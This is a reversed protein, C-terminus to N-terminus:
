LLLQECINKSFPTRLFKALNVPFCSHQHWKKIFNCVQLGAAKKFLNKKFFFLSKFVAKKLSCRRHSNRNKHTEKLKKSIIIVIVFLVMFMINVYTHIYLVSTCEKFRELLSKEFITVTSLVVLHYASCYLLLM